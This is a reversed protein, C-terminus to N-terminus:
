YLLKGVVAVTTTAVSCEFFAIWFLTRKYEADADFGNIVTWNNELLVDDVFKMDLTDTKPPTENNEITNYFCYLSSLERQLTHPDAM